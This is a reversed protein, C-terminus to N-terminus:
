QCRIAANRYIEALSAVMGAPTHIDRIHALADSALMNAAAPNDLLGSLAILLAKEDGEQYCIATKGDIVLYGDSKHATLLPVGAAMALLQSMNTREQAVPSIFVDAAKLIGVMQSPSQRGAFTVESLVGLKAAQKRLFGEARGGGILVLVCDGRRQAIVAFSKLVASMPEPRHMCGAAVIGINRSADMFCTPGPVQHVGPRLLHLREGAAGYRRTLANFVSESSAIVGSTHSGIRGIERVDRISHCSLIYRFGTRRALRRTLWAADFDLAHLFQINHSKLDEVLGALVMTKIPGFRLRGYRLSEVPPNPLEEPDTSEPIVAVIEILEDMLGVALPNLSRGLNRLTDASAIWAVKLKQQSTAATIEQAGTAPSQNVDTHNPTDNM